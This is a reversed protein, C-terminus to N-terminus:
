QPRLLGDFQLRAAECSLLQLLSDCLDETQSAQDLQQTLQGVFASHLLKDLKECEAVDQKTQIEVIEMAKQLEALTQLVIDRNSYIHQLLSQVQAMEQELHRRDSNLRRNVQQLAQEWADYWLAKCGDWAQTGAAQMQAFDKAYNSSRWYAGFTYGNLQSAIYKFAANVVALIAATSPPSLAAYLQQAYPSEAVEISTDQPVLTMHRLALEMALQYGQLADRHNKGSYADLSPWQASSYRPVLNLATVSPVADSAVKSHWKAQEKLRKEWSQAVAEEEYLTKRRKELDSQQQLLAEYRAQGLASISSQTQRMRQVRGIVSTSAVLEQRLAQRLELMASQVHSYEPIPNLVLQAWSKGIELPYYLDLNQAQPTLGGFTAIQEVLRERLEKIGYTKGAAQATRIAEQVRADSLSYTTVVRFRHAELQWNSIGPLTLQGPKLFDLKDGRGVLVVLDALPVYTKAMQLVHQQEVRNRANEGPLDLIRLPAEGEHAAAFCHQPLHVVCPATVELQSAEMDARLAGLAQELEVASECWVTEGQVTLGWRTDPSRGYEMATATASEGTARGGRLIQGVADLNQPAINMLELLLTTKGVQTQGYLVVYAEDESHRAQLTNQVQASMGQLLQQYAVDAWATQQAHLQAWRQVWDAGGVVLPADNRM